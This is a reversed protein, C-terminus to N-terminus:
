ADSSGEDETSERDDEDKDVHLTMRARRTAADHALPKSRRCTHNLQYYVRRGMHFTPLDIQAKYWSIGSSADDTPNTNDLCLCEFNQTCADMLSQFMDFTPVCGFLHKYIRQRNTVINERMIYLYDIQARLDPTLDMMYQVLIIFTVHLHRGNFFINRIAPSRFVARDYLVDDAILMLHRIKGGHALEQSLAVLQEVVAPSYTDYVCAPPMVQRLMNASEATPSMAIAFDVSNRFHYLLDKLLTTKGCGRKGVILHLRYPKLTSPRLRRVRLRTPTTRPPM